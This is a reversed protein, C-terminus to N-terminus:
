QSSLKPWSRKEGRPDDTTSLGSTQLVRWAEHCDEHLRRITRNTGNDYCYWWYPSGEEIHDFCYDCVLRRVARLPEIGMIKGM